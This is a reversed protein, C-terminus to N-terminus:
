HKWTKVRVHRTYREDQYEQLLEEIENLAESKPKMM